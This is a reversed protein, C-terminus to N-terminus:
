NIIPSFPHKTNSILFGLSLLDGDLLLPHHIPVTSHISRATGGLYLQPGINAFFQSPTKNPVILGFKLKVNVDRGSHADLNLSSIQKWIGSAQAWTKTLAHIMCSIVDSTLQQLLEKNCCAQSKDANCCTQKLWACLNNSLRQDASKNSMCYGNMTFRVRIQLTEISIVDNLHVRSKILTHLQLKCRVTRLWVSLVCIESTPCSM